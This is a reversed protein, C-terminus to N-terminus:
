GNVLELASAAGDSDTIEDWYGRALVSEILFEEGVEQSELDVVVCHGKGTDILFEMDGRQAVVKMEM